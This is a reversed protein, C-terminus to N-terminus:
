GRTVARLDARATAPDTGPTHHTLGNRRAYLRRGAEMSVEEWTRFFPAMFLAIIEAKAKARVKAEESGNSAILDVEADLQEWMKGILNM